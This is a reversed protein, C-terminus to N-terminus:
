LPFVDSFPRNTQREIEVDRTIEVSCFTYYIVSTYTYLGQKESDEKKISYKLIERETPM